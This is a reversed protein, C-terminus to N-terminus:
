ATRRRRRAVFGLLGLGSLVMAYTEPEPVTTVICGSTCGGLLYEGPQETGFRFKVNSLNSLSNATVGGTFSFNFTASQVLFPNHADNKLSGNANSYTGGSGPAGLITNEPGAHGPGSLVDLTYISSSQSFAWGVAAATTNPNVAADTYTGNSNITRSGPSSAGSLTGGTAGALDFKLGSLNYGVDGPNVVTDTLLVTLSNTGFTFMATGTQGSSSAISFTTSANALPALGLALVATLAFKNM